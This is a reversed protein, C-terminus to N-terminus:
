AVNFLSQKKTVLEVVQYGLEKAIQRAIYGYKNNVYDM